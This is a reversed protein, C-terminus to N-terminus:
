FILLMIGVVVQLLMYCEYRQAVPCISGRWSNMPPCDHTVHHFPWGIASLVILAGVVKFVINM